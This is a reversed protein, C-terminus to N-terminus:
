NVKQLDYVNFFKNFKKVYVYNNQPLKIYVRLKLWKVNHTYCKGNSEFTKM